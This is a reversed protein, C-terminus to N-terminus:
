YGLLREWEHRHHGVSAEEAAQNGRPISGAHGEAAQMQARRRDLRGQDIHDAPVRPRAGSQTQERNM